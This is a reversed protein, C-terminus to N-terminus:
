VGGTIGTHSLGKKRTRPRIQGELRIGYMQPNGDAPGDGKAVIKGFWKVFSELAEGDVMVDDAGEREGVADKVDVGPNDGNERIVHEEEEERLLIVLL